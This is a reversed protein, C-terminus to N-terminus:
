LTKLRLAQEWPSDLERESWTSALYHDNTIQNTDSCKSWNDTSGLVTAHQFSIARKDHSNNTSMLSPPIFPTFTINSSYRQPQSLCTLEELSTQKSQNSYKKKHFQVISECEGQSVALAAENATESDFVFIQNKRTPHKKVSNYEPNLEQGRDTILRNNDVPLASTIDLVYRKMPIEFNPNRSTTTEPGLARSLHPYAEQQSKKERVSQRDTQDLSTTPVTSIRAPGYNTSPSLGSTSHHDVPTASSAGLDSLPSLEGALNRRKRDKARQNQFWVQIRSPNLNISRALQDRFHAEPYHTQKFASNLAELQQSTFTTRLRRQYRMEQQYDPKVLQNNNRDEQADIVLGNLIYRM